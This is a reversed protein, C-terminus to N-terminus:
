RDRSDSGNLVRWFQFRLRQRQLLDGPSPTWDSQSYKLATSSSASPLGCHRNVPRAHPDMSTRAAPWHSSQELDGTLTWVRRISHRRGRLLRRTSDKEGPFCWRLSVDALSRAVKTVLGELISASRRVASPSSGSLARCQQSPSLRWHRHQQWRRGCPGQWEGATNRHAGLRIHHSQEHRGSLAAADYLEATKGEGGTVLIEGNILLTATHGARAANLIGTNSWQGTAPDFVEATNTALDYITCTLATPHTACRPPIEPPGNGGAVLVRGDPLLTASHLDRATNLSSASSWTGAAPDYLEADSLPFMYDADNSGGTVLVRGDQLLTAQHLARPTILGGTESWTSTVPDYLAAPGLYGSGGAVLVKGTQLLTATHDFRYTTPSSTRSWTGAGPDYLEANDLSNVINVGGVVLVQGNPLLTATHGVHAANPRGTVTWTGTDPDYLEASDLPNGSGDSGGVVLVKGNALLTATHGFRPINLNGTVAWTAEESCPHLCLIYHNGGTRDFELIDRNGERRDVASTVSTAALAVLAAVCRAFSLTITM